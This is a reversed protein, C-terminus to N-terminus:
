WTPAVWVHAAALGEIRRTIEPGDVADANKGVEDLWDALAEVTPIRHEPPSEDHNQAWTAHALATLIQAITHAATLEEKPASRKPPPESVPSSRKPKTQGSALSARAAATRRERDKIQREIEQERVPDPDPVLRALTRDFDQRDVAAVRAAHRDREDPAPEPPNEKRTM